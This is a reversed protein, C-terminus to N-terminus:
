ATMWVHTKWSEFMMLGDDLCADELRVPTSQLQQHRDCLVTRSERGDGAPDTLEYVFPAIVIDPAEEDSAGALYKLLAELGATDFTDDGDLLKFYLGRSAKVAANVTSGYGGNAKRILRVSDPHKSVFREAIQPTGDSSGDDVIIIDLLSLLEEGCEVSSLTRELSSEVNYAAISITLLKESQM